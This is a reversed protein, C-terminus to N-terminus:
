LPFDIGCPTRNLCVVKVTNKLMEKYTTSGRRQKEIRMILDKSILNYHM